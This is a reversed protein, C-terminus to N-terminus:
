VFSMGISRIADLLEKIEEKREKNSSLKQAIYLLTLDKVEDTPSSNGTTFSILVNKFGKPFYEVEVSPQAEVDLYLMGDSNVLVYSPTVTTFSSSGAERISIATLSAIDTYGPIDLYEKGNGNLYLNSVTSVGQWTRGTLRDVKKTAMDIMDQIENDTYELEYTRLLARVSDVTLYGKSDGGQIAQSYESYVATSSNYFRIKYWYSSSGSDDYYTNDGVVQTSVLSYTGTETTSRYIYVTDYGAESDPKKWRIKVGM